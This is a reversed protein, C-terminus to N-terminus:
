RELPMGHVKLRQWHELIEVGIVKPDVSKVARILLNSKRPILSGANAKENLLASIAGSPAYKVRCFRTHSEEGIKQLAENLALMLDAESKKQGEVNRPFLVRRGLQDPKATPCLQKGALKRNGYNVQTWPTEFTQTPKSMAISAYSRKEMRPKSNSSSPASTSSIDRQDQAQSM